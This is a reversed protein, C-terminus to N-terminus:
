GARGARLGALRALPGTPASRYCDTPRHVGAGPDATLAEARLALLRVLRETPRFPDALPRGADLPLAALPEGAVLALLVDGSPARRGELQALREIAPADSPGALRIALEGDYVWRHRSM